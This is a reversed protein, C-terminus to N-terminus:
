ERLSDVVRLLNRHRNRFVLHLMPCMLHDVFPVYSTITVTDTITFSETGDEEVHSGLQREHRWLRYTFATHSVEVFGTASIQQIGVYHWDFPIIGFLLLTSTFSPM